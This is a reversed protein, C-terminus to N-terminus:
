IENIWTQIASLLNPQYPLFGKLPAELKSDTIWAIHVINTLKNCFNILEPYPEYYYFILALNPKQFKKKIQQIKPTLKAPHDIGEPIDADTFATLYILNCIEQSIIGINTEGTLSQINLPLPYTQNTPQVQQLLTHIDTYQQELQKITTTDSSLQYDAIEPHYTPTTHWAQYFQPYTLNKACEWLTKFCYKYVKFNNEYIENNLHKRLASVTMLYNYESKIIRQLSSIVISLTDENQAYDLLSILATIAQENGPDIEGLSEAVNLCISKDQTSNLLFILTNIAQKNGPDIKGLSKAINLYISEDQTSNLLSILATIAQKNGVAIKGLIYTIMSITDECQTSNLLSVLATIVQKNGVATKELFTTVGFFKSKDNISNLFYILATIAQRSGVGIDALGQAIMSNQTSNLLSILTTIAQENGPDIKGLSEAVSQLQRTFESQTSNLLSVLSTIAQKNGVAIEGLIHAVMIITDEDQTSDVLSILSTILQENGVSIKRLILTCGVKKLFDQTYGLLFILFKIAQKNAPEIKLLSKAINIRTDEDQTSGLLSILFKIVQENGVGIEGLIQVVSKRTDEDQTSGLLSILFKIVQENGVGIEGLIQVVSERTYEDQTSDLLYILAFIVKEVDTLLLIERADKPIPYIFTLWEQAEINFYGFGWQIIQNVLEDALSCNKFEGIAVAAKFYAKYGYFDNVGDAFDVLAQIFGEKKDKNIDERGMWLLFVENWEKEFIRYEKGEVPKDIHNRPLFYDWDDIALAAFYEQFTPHYFGYGWL